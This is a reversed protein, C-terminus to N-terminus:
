IGVARIGFVLISHLLQIRLGLTQGRAGLMPLIIDQVIVTLDPM